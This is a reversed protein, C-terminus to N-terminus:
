HYDLALAALARVGVPLASEDVRFLPSHNAPAGAPDIGPATSGLFFFMGPVRRQFESFDESATVKPVERISGHVVRALTPLMRATLAPSNVTTPYHTPGFVLETTAGSAHAISETTNRMRAVLDDRMADDYTRLTGLMDVSDPIINERNGGHIAGISLVAPQEAINVQRSVLTQLGLIIQASAVIPDVGNWPMAGHTQRGIVKLHFADGSAMVPGSRTGLVGAPLSAMLHLGFIADVKPNELVGADIMALAGIHEGPTQSPRSYGEEAPQFIFKVTGHLRSKMASLVEAAAMLMATHGDHGCAHMVGTEKGMNTGIVHSAFPLDSMETVPLADMDARLAVVKGPLAGTLVGVVGTGGVGTTVRLGLRQLHEAVLAATRTEQGSLEPHQHIDRRWAILQPEIAAVREDLERATAADLAMAPGLAGLLLAGACHAGWNATKLSELSRM